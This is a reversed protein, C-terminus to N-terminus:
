KAGHRRDVVTAPRFAQNEGFEAERMVKAVQHEAIDASLLAEVERHDPGRDVHCRANLGHAAGQFLVQDDGGGHGSRSHAFALADDGYAPIDQPSDGFGLLQEGEDCGFVRRFSSGGPPNLALM